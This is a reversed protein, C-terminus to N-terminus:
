CTIRNKLTHGKRFIGVWNFYFLVKLFLESCNKLSGPLTTLFWAISKEIVRQFTMVHSRPMIAILTFAYSCFFDWTRRYIWNDDDKNRISKKEDLTGCKMLGRPSVDVKEGKHIQRVIERSAAAMKGAAFLRPFSFDRTYYSHFYDRWAVQIEM